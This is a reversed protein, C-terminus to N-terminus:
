FIYKSKLLIAIDELYSSQKRMESCITDSLIKCDPPNDRVTQRSKHVTAYVELFRADEIYWYTARPFELIELNYRYHCRSTCFVKKKLDCSGTQPQPLLSM